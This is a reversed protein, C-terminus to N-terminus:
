KYLHGFSNFFFKTLFNTEGKKLVEWLLHLLVRAQVPTGYFGPEGATTYCTPSASPIPLQTHTKPTILTHRLYLQPYSKIFNYNHKRQHIAMSSVLAEQM